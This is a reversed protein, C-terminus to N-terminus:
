PLRRETDKNGRLLLKKLDEFDKVKREKETALEKAHNEKISSIEEKLTIVREKEKNLAFFMFVIAGVLASITAFIITAPVALDVTDALRLSTFM